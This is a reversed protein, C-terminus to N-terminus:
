DKKNKKSNRTKSTKTRSSKNKKIKRPNKNDIKINKPKRLTNIFIEINSKNNDFEGIIKKLSVNDIENGLFKVKERM